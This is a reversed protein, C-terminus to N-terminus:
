SEELDRLLEVANALAESLFIVESMNLHIPNPPAYVDEIHVVAFGMDRDRTDLDFSVRVSITSADDALYTIQKKTRM